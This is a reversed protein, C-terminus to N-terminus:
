PSEAVYAHIIGLVAFLMKEIGPTVNLCVYNHLGMSTGRSAYWQAGSVVGVESQGWVRHVANPFRKFM